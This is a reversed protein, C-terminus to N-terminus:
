GVSVAYIQYTTPENKHIFHCFLCIDAMLVSIFVSISHPIPKFFDYLPIVGFTSTTKTAFTRGDLLVPTEFVSDAPKM